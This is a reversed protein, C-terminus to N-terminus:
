RVIYLFNIMRIPTQLGKEAEPAKLPFGDEKEGEGSGFGM